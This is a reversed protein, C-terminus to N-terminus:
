LPKGTECKSKRWAHQSRKFGFARRLEEAEGGTFKAAIMAIRPLQEQFLPAGLTRRLVPELLPRTRRARGRNLHPNLMKGVIPGPRIIAVQVVVASVEGASTAAALFAHTLSTRGSSAGGLVETIAGQPLGLLLSQLHNIQLPFYVYEPQPPLFQARLILVASLM